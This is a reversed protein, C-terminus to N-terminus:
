PVIIFIHLLDPRQNNKNKKHIIRWSKRSMEYILNSILDLLEPLILNRERYLSLVHYSENKDITRIRFLM